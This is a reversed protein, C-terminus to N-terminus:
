RTFVTVGPQSSIRGVTLEIDHTGPTLREPVRANVQMLGAFGPAAGAYLVEAPFGGIKLTVPLV